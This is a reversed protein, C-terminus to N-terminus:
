DKLAIQHNELIELTTHLNQIKEMKATLHVVQRTFQAVLTANKQRITDNYARLKDANGYEIFTIGFERDADAKPLFMDALTQAEEHNLAHVYAFVDSSYRSRRISYIGSGGARQVTEVHDKIREWIRNSRRTVTSKKRGLAEIYKIDPFYRQLVYQTVASASHIGLEFLVEPTYGFAPDNPVQRTRYYDRDYDYKDEETYTLNAGRPGKPRKRLLDDIISDRRKDNMRKGLQTASWLEMM